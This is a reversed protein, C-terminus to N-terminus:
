KKLKGLGRKLFLKVMEGTIKWVGKPLKKNAGNSEFNYLEGDEVEVTLKAGNEDKTYHADIKPTDIDVKVNGKEDRSIEIDVKKTDLKINLPKRKRPKKEM